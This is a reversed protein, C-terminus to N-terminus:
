YFTIVDGVKLSDESLVRTDVIVDYVMIYPEMSPSVITYLTLVPKKHTLKAILNSVIYFILFSAILVLVVLAVYSFISSITKFINPKSEKKKAM